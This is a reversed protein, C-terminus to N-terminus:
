QLIPNRLTPAPPLRLHDICIDVGILYTKAINIRGVISLKFKVWFQAMARIKVIIKNFNSEELDFNECIDLGLITLTNVISFGTVTINEAFDQTVNIPLVQTKEVNIVLGSLKSFNDLITKVNIINEPEGNVLISVDDEILYTNSPRPVSRDSDYSNGNSSADVNNAYVPAPFGQVPYSFLKHLGM